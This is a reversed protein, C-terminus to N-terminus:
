DWDSRSFTFYEALKTLVASVVYAEVTDRSADPDQKATRLGLAVGDEVCQLVLKETKVKM